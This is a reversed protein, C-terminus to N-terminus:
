AAVEAAPEHFTCSGVHWPEDPEDRRLSAIRRTTSECHQSTMDERRACTRCMDLPGWAIGASM